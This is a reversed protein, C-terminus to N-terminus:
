SEHLTWSWRYTGPGAQYAPLTDPGCSATGVGRHAADLHVTVCPRATLEDHHRAAALDAATYHTLAVQRPTDLHVTLGTGSDEGTTLSFWRVGHRGGSEQPRLYPTFLERVPAGYRGVPGGACRDPYTEGPGHGFWRAQDLGEAATFVTGVRPLDDLGDPIVATEEVLLTGGALPTLVQEHLVTGAATLYEARVVVREGDRTIDRKIDTLSRAASPLGQEAWRDAAGGLRDNDTPARWLSLVPPAALRPHVLLGQDDVCVPSVSQGPDDVCVPSASRGRVTARAPLGRAEGRLRVQPACVETGRPAWAQDAAARVSLTLWAEGAEPLRALLEAPIPLAVSEGPGLRPLLAPSRVAASDTTELRWEGTLWALDRFHQHNAMLVDGSDLLRLRVPAAIERHEYMAPKPTRDPLVLGDACFAGDHPDDGFDGGYAWRYGPAAIGAAYGDATGPGAPRGAGPGDAVRQLIGHDWFEWVFGGQLGPTSEIATWYDALSGNSNGMAHSYECLILPKTQEGSAAHAVIADISTYMPCIIDTATGPRSWDSGLAGEYQVPRTPDYRRLWGAAADHNPGYGSENGLSWVVVSPHNKDRSAMRAVRELFAARYGPEHAIEDYHGHSEIDAEDVVYLGLEDALDLLAPDNPYHSTRVANFGFRKIVTLDARLDTESLVRGTLPHFDHRNVGRIFVREGNVLLDRGRIEVTRFGVRCGAEDAVTGDPHHLRVTLEYLEPTEASWPRVEPVTATLTAGGRWGSSRHDPVAEATLPEDLHEPSDLSEPSTVEELRGSVYWGAPLLGGTHRVDTDVRLRGTGGEALDATVRLDALHLPDTAYLFVSRTIGGHWWHDQDEVYTADSWKVVTLRVTNSQGTRLAGTVDFESALHADKGAGVPEGNVEAILVSEAAGVHLVVRRGAWREPVHIEREHVGTPNVPPLHPPPEPWPMQFNTYQPLDGVGHIDDFDQMTWCGPVQLRSWHDAPESDPSPLLQFRWHGDLAVRDGHDGRPVAHLPLRRWGSVDPTEWLRLPLAFALSRTM